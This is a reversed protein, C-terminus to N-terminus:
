PSQVMTAQLSQSSHDASWLLCVGVISVVSFVGEIQFHAASHKRQGSNTANVIREAFHGDISKKKRGFTGFHEFHGGQKGNLPQL